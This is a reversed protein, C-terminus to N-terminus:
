PLLGSRAHRWHRNRGRWHLALRHDRAFRCLELNKQGNESDLVYLSKDKGGVIVHDGSILASSDVEGHTPFVWLQQGTKEDLGYIKRDRAGVAVIGESIAPSAYVMAEDVIKSFDWVQKGDMSFSLVHGRDTGVFIHGGDIAPSGGALAGLDTNFIEKGDAVNIARLHADCGSFLAVSQGNENIVSPCANIRDGAEAAWM